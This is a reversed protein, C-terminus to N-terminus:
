TAARNVYIIKGHEVLVVASPLEELIRQSRIREEVIQHAQTSVVALVFGTGAMGLLAGLAVAPVASDLLVGGLAAIVTLAPLAVVFLRGMGRRAAHGLLRM